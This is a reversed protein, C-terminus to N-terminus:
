NARWLVGVSESNTQKVAAGLVRVDGHYKIPLRWSATGHKTEFVCRVCDSLEETVLVAYAGVQSVVRAIYESRAVDPLESFVVGSFPTGSTTQVSNEPWLLITPYIAHDTRWLDPIKNVSHTARRLLEEHIFLEPSESSQVM